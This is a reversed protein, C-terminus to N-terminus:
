ILGKIQLTAQVKVKSTQIFIVVTAAATNDSAKMAPHPLFSWRGADDPELAVGGCGCVVVGGEDAFLPM